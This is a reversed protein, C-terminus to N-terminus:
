NSQNPQCNMTIIVSRVFKSEYDGETIQADHITLDPLKVNQPVYECYIHNANFKRQCIIGQNVTYPNYFSGLNHLEPRGPIELGLAQPSLILAILTLYKM